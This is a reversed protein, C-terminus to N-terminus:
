WEPVSHFYSIHYYLPVRCEGSSCFQLRVMLHNQTMDIFVWLPYPRLGRCFHLQHIICGWSVPSLLKQYWHFAHLSIQRKISLLGSFSPTQVWTQPNSKWSFWFVLMKNFDQIMEIFFCFLFVDWVDQNIEVCCLRSFILDKLFVLCTSSSNEEQYSRQCNIPMVHWYILSYNQIQIYDDDHKQFPFYNLQDVGLRKITSIFKYHEIFWTYNLALM